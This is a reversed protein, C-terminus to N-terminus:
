PRRLDDLGIKALQQAAEEKGAAHWCQVAEALCAQFQERLYTVSTIAGRGRQKPFLPMRSKKEPLPSLALWQRWRQLAQLVAGNVPIRQSSKKARHDTFQWQGQDNVAFDTMKPADATASAVCHAPRLQLHRIITILFLTREHLTPQATALTEATAHLHQWQQETVRCKAPPTESPLDQWKKQNILTHVPNYPLQRQYVLYDFFIHLISLLQDLTRPSLQHASPADGEEENHHIVFPRWEPNPLRGSAHHLFRPVKKEGVWSLPPQQCFKLYRKIAATDLQAFSQDAEWECWLLFREIERRYTHYTAPSHQYRQLFKWALQNEQPYRSDGYPGQDLYPLQDFRAPPAKM